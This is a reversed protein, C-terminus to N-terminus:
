EKIFQQQYWSSAIKGVAGLCQKLNIGSEEAEAKGEKEVDAVIWKVFKGTNKKDLGVEELGQKLRAETTMM